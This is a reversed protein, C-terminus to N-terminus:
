TLAGTAEALEALVPGAGSLHAGRGALLLPRTSTRLQEAVQALTETDAVPVPAPSPEQHAVTDETVPTTALDYPIALVVPLRHHVAHQIAEATVAGANQAGVTFTPAGVAAALGTQDVDWPRNGTTPADGTILVLPIRAQASEALSTLTNSFGPGYTTTAAALGGGTRYHADAAVVAGAEHRVATFTATQDRELADLLYANGNGMVGFVHDVHRALVEAIRASVTPMPEREAPPRFAQNLRAPQPRRPARSRRGASGTGARSWRRVVSGTGAGSGAGGRPDPAWERTTALVDAPRRWTTALVDAPRRRSTALVNAVSPLSLGSRAPAARGRCRATATDPRLPPHAHRHLLRHPGRGTGP